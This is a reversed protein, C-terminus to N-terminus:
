SIKSRKTQMFAFGVVAMTCAILAYAVIMTENDSTKPNHYSKVDETLIEKKNEYNDSKKVESKSNDIETADNTDTDTDIDTDTATATDTATDTDIDTDSSKKTAALSKTMFEGEHDFDAVKILYDADPAQISASFSHDENVQTSQPPVINTSGSPDCVFIQVALVDEGAVGSVSIVGDSQTADLSVINHIVAAYLSTSVTFLMVIFAYLFTKLVKKM